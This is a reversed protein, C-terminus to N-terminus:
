LLLSSHLLRLSPTIGLLADVGQVPRLLRKIPFISDARITPPVARPVLSPPIDVKAQIVADEGLVQETICDICKESEATDQLCPEECPSTPALDMCLTNLVLEPFSGHAAISSEPMSAMTPSMSMNEGSMACAYEVLPLTASFILLATLVFRFARYTRFAKM